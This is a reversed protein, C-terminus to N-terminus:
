LLQRHSESSQSLMTDSQLETDTHNDHLMLVAVQMLIDM